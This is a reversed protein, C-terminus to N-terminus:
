EGQQQSERTLELLGIAAGKDEMEIFRTIDRLFNHEWGSAGGAGAGALGVENLLNLFQVTEQPAWTQTKWEGNYNQSLAKVIGLDKEFRRLAKIREADLMIFDDHADWQCTSEMEKAKFRLAAELAGFDQLLDYGRDYMSKQRRLIKCDLGQKHRTMGRSTMYSGCLTCETINHETKLHELAAQIGSHQLAQENGAAQWLRFPIYFRRSISFHRSSSPLCAKCLLESKTFYHKDDYHVVESFRAGFSKLHM